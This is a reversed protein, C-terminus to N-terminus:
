KGLWRRRCAKMQEDCLNQLIIWLLLPRRRYRVKWACAVYWINFQIDLRSNLWEWRTWEPPPFLFRMM